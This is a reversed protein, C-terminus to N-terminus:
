GVARKKQRRRSIYPLIDLIIIQLLVAGLIVAVCVLTGTRNGNIVFFLCALFNIFSLFFLIRVLMEERRVNKM